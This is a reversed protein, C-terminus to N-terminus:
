TLVTEPETKANRIRAFEEARARSEEPTPKRKREALAQAGEPASGIPSENEKQEKQKSPGVGTGESRPGTPTLASPGDNEHDAGTPRLVRPASPGLTPLIPTVRYRTPSSFSGQRVVQLHGMEVLAKLAKRVTRADHGTAQAISAPGCWAEDGEEKNARFAMWLLVAKYAPKGPIEVDKALEVMPISM